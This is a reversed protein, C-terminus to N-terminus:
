EDYNQKELFSWNNSKSLLADVAVCPIRWQGGIRCAELQGQRILRGITQPSVGLRVAVNRVSMFENM